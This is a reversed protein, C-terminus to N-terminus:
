GKFFYIINILFYLGRYELLRYCSYQKTMYTSLCILGMEFVSLKQYM